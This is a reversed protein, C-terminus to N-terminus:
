GPTTIKVPAIYRLNFIYMCQSAVRPNRELAHMYRNYILSEVYAVPLVPVKPGNPGQLLGIM